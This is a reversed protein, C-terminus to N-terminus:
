LSLLANKERETINEWLFDLVVDESLNKYQESDCQHQKEKEEKSLNQYRECAKRTTM